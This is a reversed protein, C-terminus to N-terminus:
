FLDKPVADSNNRCMNILYNLAKAMHQPTDSPTGVGYTIQVTKRPLLNGAADKDNGLPYVVGSKWSGVLTDTFQSAFTVTATDPLEITVTPFATQQTIDGIVPLEPVNPRFLGDGSAGTAQKLPLFFDIKNSVDWDTQGGADNPQADDRYHKHMSLTLHMKCGDFDTTYSGPDYTTTLKPNFLQGGSSVLVQESGTQGPIGAQAIHSQIWNVTDEYSPQSQSANAQSQQPGAEQRSSSDVVQVPLTDGPDDSNAVAYNSGEEEVYVQTSDTQWSAPVPAALQFEVDNLVFLSQALFPTGIWAASRSWNLKHTPGFHAAFYTRDFRGKHFHSMAAPNSGLSVTRM